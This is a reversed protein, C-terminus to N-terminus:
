CPLENELQIHGLTITIIDEKDVSVRFKPGWVDKFPKLIYLLVLYFLPLVNLLYFDFHLSIEPLIHSMIM